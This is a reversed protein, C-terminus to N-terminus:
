KEGTNWIRQARHGECRGSAALRQPTQAGMKHVSLGPLTPNEGKGAEADQKGKKGSPSRVRPAQTLGQTEGEKIGVLRAKGATERQWPSTM